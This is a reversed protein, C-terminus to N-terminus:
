VHNIMRELDAAVSIANQYVEKLEKRFQETRRMEPDSYSVFFVALKRTMADAKRWVAEIEKDSVVSNPLGQVVETEHTINQFTQPAEDEGNGAAANSEEDPPPGAEDEETNYGGSYHTEQNDIGETADNQEQTIKMEEPLYEPHNLISDQGPLQEEEKKEQSEEKPTPIKAKSVKAEGGTKQKEERQQQVPAVEAKKPFKEGYRFSWSAEASEESVMLKEIYCLLEDWDYEEKENSRINVLAPRKNMGKLSLMMRGIGQLRVIYIKEGDPVLIEYVSQMGDKVAEYLNAYLEPEDKGLQWLAKYLNNELEETIHDQGEMLVELESIKNEEDFEEKITQIERKSFGPNLEENVEDPLQLMITLKAHGFGRFHEKLQDSYGGESFRDNINMFRSVQSKDINYEAQAFDYVNAYGSERLIDTDKAVKLLYGIRVFSETTKRLETDLQQKYEQYTGYKMLDM